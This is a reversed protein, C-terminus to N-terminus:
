GKPQKQGIPDYTWLDCGNHRSTAIYKPTSPLLPRDKEPIWLREKKLNRMNLVARCAM